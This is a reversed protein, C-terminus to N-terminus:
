REDHDDSDGRAADELESLVQEEVLDALAAVTRHVLVDRPTLSVGFADNARSVIHLARLSDGGIQLYDDEAGVVTHLVEEWIDAIVEETPTRPAVRDPTEQLDAPPAPLAARDTKGNDTLPFREMVVFASPVMPGPLTGAALARLEAATPHEAGPAALLHAVLRPLDQEDERVTVVADLVAPHRTLVTEVEGAEIRHGRLKLQHDTRGLYHLEGRADRRVLDGTRYMRTGPPGFPDATFRSATLAPRNLYGRALSPGSLWLEGPVGDPVPRLRADLVYTGTHPLRRGIPPAAGDAELPGSWTAVVTAETPGYSNVLRHHPAWRAVLEAGCADAGVTLTKLDPLTGPTEPPLTALAAPPLLTHTIREARLVEALEAGLLPGPRPVVLSAGHPLSMCLELVSADFSPTAFVLVRDGADVQYHAAEAAAFGALGRHTVVVGKPTGTSGSTYIVYAPDDLRLPRTRDADSPRHGPADAPMGTLLDGVEEPGLTVVPDADRLMLAIREQPYGPDVSLFAAGAKTVAVQALFMEASRPLTLAVLDGPGVGRAILRHALVNARAEVEAFSLSLGPAHLAPADPARDVAAEVLAPLTVPAVAGTEPRAAGALLRSREAPPLVDVDDLPTGDATDALAHLTHLLQDALSRATSEEFYRPDYGLEVSLREGPSIVVTVPYNTAERAELDHMQVGHAGATSDDVPYNEFVLLSDFLPTGAPLDSFTHLRTLPVHGFRRDEARAAQTRRLWAACTEGGDVTARAPLTTIFLGTITDAGPLDSPRGSVTTGYCVEREGSWRSLLLGWAGEVVTNLTLRHRRAFEQLAKTSDEGLRESLWTGSSASAGLAPRRDYPLATPATLGALAASWHEEARVTDRGAFWAAYDSFPRRDPLRPEDGAALAAHCAVVDSLVHFVSWGDLLVHHFTWVVRVEDPATRILTTRLMPAADLAIGRAKDEALLAELETTRREPTLDSWDHETVPLVATRHVAQLPVPVGSLVVATRLVPTRDVVHQWAAALLGTDRVGDMVFTVQETYVGGGPEDMGHVVMGSQTPTLPYVDVIDRGTGVLRDVAAQDLPALPFDSPTRGGAGPEACHRVIARLERALEAALGEVTDRRYVERSYAWTFELRKDTVQGLVDILHPREAALDMGGALGSHPAHLLGGTPANGDQQGLYNFGLQPLGPLRAGATAHLHRLAGYGLGGHPVARLSEKVSKLASGTDAHRPVDLVVPYVSTFWGVTRSLDVGDFLEERGHGELTVPVRDRGTWRAVVRGLACLLVDNVRTRYVDPVDQLLRRTDERDLRVTVTEEYAATNAGALDTPLAVDESAAEWHALEDDFGGDATHDLLRRAWARFSTTKAGLDVPHGDRLARYATDLDELLVHWSVADVALHHAALILVPRKDGDLRCLAARFLPAVSLDFAGGLRDALERLAADTGEPTRPPLDHVELHAPGAPATVHQRWLGEGDREFRLRLADHHKLVATLADRLLTEDTDATLQHSVTQTLHAPDGSLTDFLHHQVPTLPTEGVVPGQEARVATAPLDEAAAALEAVTQHQFLHRPTLNLGARRAASVIQIGLISDGGLTFYNDRVGVDPVRLVESWITALTKEAGTRPAHEGDGTTGAPWVPEPLAGRDLKGTAGLPLRDLPMVVSPVLHEPLTRALFARLEASDPVDTGAPVAYAVLRHHGDHEVVQAAAASVQPHRAVASEVEGLEIRFGRLKVQHDTRGLYHLEGRADRRVLDGTRYMRTGPPGFPDATFRSATLAPRNLYGRALSPGSLWLEGPVGDPVPRLRADLVYTGTHPLRRGIPPAAGDAELPGSWTAVVTAETPGYSNVLRHHPAWRAVLEAGCADAGVTLTKLDPLTGPTEPPLTALAAPPLLTHTVRGDRLVEALEAGLLPGPPPVVLSAGRPLSMCLELVSADFSPTAFALVRDGPSVQYHAAEAASFGALGRHTVVVGKPTGTSGSTYIVYAPDDLRLPRTRDADSPRHGPADAPMGTLLDGVEEPGLTVVPDADRLMLAIREQPYGPDVSLFAAGAKTVAVQALFMEASRPLTLAVLDGPGVGRAILRHALVNARAEVEAFSLSLGPAHLAPADPARDVAAEVLAPLTVPAVAGTEPRAAGALLRSREAPPLVDVDDLPTGDATDALAHLTHLLQDALSRATSEEFHHPDFGLEATLQEGPSIMVTLPYNTPELDREQEISLGHRALADADFPYNEFVVISDFLTSGGPIDSWTQLQALSVFDHRRSESQAAQLDGLWDLLRRRGDVRARTPLTNIFLGVMSTVGPLDAPRGSVTTGFVVDDGGGYRSLLLAWAGQLMTNVTLGAQQATERLRASVGGDLTVRVSGSSSARHAEAPRRDRPLPTPASFGALATRWYQEARETDQRTLWGLYDAFAARQAVEPRRGAALAAYRECVEDFVQAASWGDLLVHHFTWVMRVRDPSLRILALRMLPAAGLDVGAARDAALLRDMEQERRQGSWTTWDHHTVPVTARRQVVQLPEATEQWELRTRLVPNADATHQWADALAHPDTVGCLVLQVQNVYTRGDPDLLSHFLMGAQMPTLPYLDAVTRGDGVVRDLAPQDLRALPFDSPTRGGADPRACHAVIGELAQVMGSALGAITEERHLRHSYYWTIELQDDEVRAVVDLLHPRVSEPAEAGDLGGPVSRVLSGDDAGSGGSWGFRGLYNFSVAAAPPGDLPDGGALHRLAGFGIGRDPVSRLQEKVAKLATGWDGDPVDLAVPYLSTFWGVTRSLDIDEFLQDERGHGELGVAVTRRGTWGALVRGLATLLADDIRTRYAGPVERLLADTRRRDLRVTVERVDAMTNAGGDVAEEPEVPLPAACHRSVDQWHARQDAFGGADTHARLRRAWEQVSTTREALRVGEGARAQRYATDLDELLVRWSVGDVVLHHVTLLLRPRDGAFLLATLLPGSDLRFAAHAAATLRSEAAEADARDLGTLDHVGLLEPVAAGADACTQRWSGDDQREFRSRLADHHAWLAALARRLADPDVDAATEVVVSQNFFEPRHPDADLFWHQIPTLAVDGAVPDTGAVPAATGSAAALAAVTPHRFLDRPTLALGAARARSVVQISLISDGGLMFFHDDAGVRAVGLVDAWIESLIQEAGARPARYATDGTTSWDPEPLRRRDVKGNATLTLEPVTVFAAPLMYDPLDAALRERLEAAGPVRAGPAPVLHAALRKHGGQAYLSVVAEAVAPHATLRAEIEAPEVRFGRIKIQDDARGVFHLEGDGSWRVIDGTRYMRTGPPGFPDALYRGATAGPLGAYGRALGAGAVYLEGPVGPPQPELAEDLVYARTNDLPRGIPLVAPLPDGARFPRRTAFTTTETPGYGDVVTLDPCADLVRAVVAGPVAEGGTWVETAGRLCAPDEQALLRFLGATLWLCRVGRETIARRVGAADLDEPPALVATGGHLLPVWLEYTSADFAHPSHMLVREHGAFSRDLALAAVDRHRVAVGKPTGTSGSTFMLYQVNDPHVLPIRPADSTGADSAGDAAGAGLDGAGGDGDVRLVTGDPLADRASDRCAEDTLLLAAGVDTLLRRLRETPARGDLPVYVGGTRALALQAVVLAVSRNMLVGVPVEATVGLATLRTALAAARDDLDGYTLQEDGAELAPADPTRRVQAAFLDAATVDPTYAATDNWTDLVQHRRAPTLLPLRAPARDPGTTMGELLVTLYEAMRAVTGADFLEPDYGLRLTLETGPYAVLSLPYNTTEIGDLGSLGLGHAAALDDDVPYNEFVVISDFLDAREPLGTFAKMRTLAVYDFRRDESQDRQLDRLWDLLTGEREVTVPTPLTAIFLGTMDESGPLEAPRGSVTTGFVVDARGAQRSLLLAWAGQVLTNLTLGATRALDELARSTAEPVTVRVADTSEAHHSERPERDYPLATTESVGALRDRWHREAEAWDRERLWAVYDRFPRRDPGDGATDVAGPAATSRAHRAFVDSLVQFLSWGDLILHHFSWVVRVSTDSLRALVLRQLPAPTLDVGRERDRDLFDRLAADREDEALDRWDLHTVPVLAHRRVVFLPEPVDQWVVHGRLVPSRDTVQQWAAAFAGPDPVGDLVFSLQQFYVRRDDQSLGHFLMGAQTPTLPHVDEVAGPDDGTVRDVAAQDLAALPFDSPTRGGNGPTAAHRAIARLADAFREALGTVTAQRHLEASYFFTFELEEGDLQGVVELAHPRTSLPDADLELPRFTGGYLSDPAGGTAFRGLYNFSVQAGPAPPLVGPAALHRLVDHGLGHRPVARLQEKVQKLVADWGADAPVALAVPHRTTFWGVTRSTDVDAFLEERGHGEVDVLVREHGTWACLVRGLASLLVDNVRTRYTDPLTRLLAATDDAGLRVTVPRASAYTNAGTLDRPLDVVAGATAEAWYAAEDDFGGAAARDTLLRAWHRLPSSKAPLAGTGDRGESRARYARDLDELLVRWSVGDVVLHHVALHLVAPLGEGRDHLVARLLPGHELDFPGLHPMDTGPGTHRTLRLRPVREDIRWGAGGRQGGNGDSGDGGDHDGREGRGDHQAAAHPFRSRLADHHALVDNLAHELATADVTGALETSLTQAFHGARDGASDFLWRQIPTLPATGTAPVVAPAATRRPGSADACRALAAVTQHRYVDRSTVTLGAQRAQAVVQISLISDGGLAFFNDDAGVREVHLVQAWIGALVRETPTRPAVHRTAHAAPSPAPLRSRDLKGNPNLPLASLVTVTAPVLYDPLSRGLTRRVSEPEVHAGPAPVVYGILRRHGDSELVTAASQAVGACGRLAEEVEGLEIRFGRVKVQHDIRGLYELEGSASWRVLDGTRYMREGATGFPDALFRSATLGPRGLYGRALGGGGLYLEGTVGPPQPRLLRDLVYTRTRAVPRGIPPAQGTVDAGAFWATAYVTAETPGYINAVEVSPMAARLDRVTQAPLAEGALVVTDAELGAGGATLLRSIVSPVGSLLGARKPGREDALATLDAIVEVSGGALLPCFLEFVSVDFNLSTSAVVHALGQAGFREAAWAALAAVTRHTVVVGKPRGTSGSTYIVYAPHDPRLPRARDTDSLDAAYPDEADRGPADDAPCDEIILPECGDPLADATERAAVVLAPAADDLMFSIRERPYGPDVPLYGAGSKLVAWLTPLLDASRPLCLAVLTEPGAGRAVLLRALRNARRNVEAYDLSTPGCLVATRGPTAAVQAEFLAPLTDGPEQHRGAPAPPNWTELLTSREDESLISLKALPRHPSEAMGELLRHLHGSMRSVTDAGFLDTNYEVTLDCGGGPGPSFELVLDFRSAPRPLPHEEVRLGGCDGSHDVATQQVVLAQVLPTRSPDRPPALEEVVRDFPVGDHAFADLVTARMSQVFEDVTLTDDVEERLVVTNAFFGTVDELDRRGRGNTITGFAVDRQGSYRSFLVAAAGAFLTFATTGRGGALQRLRAILDAPLHHRHATGATTREAPRARDTPLNLQQMGTLHRKWYALDTAHSEAPREREWVAFDPYQVGPAPLGDPAGTAEARYLATLDRTLIGVSWGDTVIHHQALLLLHDDAARHVLLARTLPGAALDYPRSLEDTLIREAAEARQGAPLDRVDATRLPLVAEGSVRQVGQGDVTDFTTRLADHRAALRDLARRLAAVDPEGRLRLAVGTNYESGGDSLDDLFWLRRQASSLPLPRDRPAPPIPEAAVAAGPDALLPALAAINRATFVDRVLLRVGLEDRIRSLTRAALISDGGLDFFDDEVGLEGVALVDQWIAALAREEPTRPLVRGPAPTHVPAPLANRDIKHQPTLPLEDLVVVAAPVMHAPLSAAAGALLEAPGPARERDAPTVYGVLRRHGPEDERVVVVAERVGDHALLAAEIEGPEIRFGRVKVQRDVRGLYELEGGATWRARDGTRYLRAGPPGFPDAVFRGATLGPRGLYGRAVGDGGVFLEGDGGPPVPRMDADLVHARTGPLPGGITPTGTGAALPGTWSAVITAETPGYSNIMRRGPAWDDVLHAPCAEAGVILTRLHPAGGPGPAPLTTLAAPPILTHSIRHEDLVAALEDGLWPGDPPVVLTAGTLVSIFLELVSADFSPSSFQLVRDGPGVAYQQAAAAAFGAIGRHTVTVGKPRGTSGSTYIVYAAQDAAVPAVPPTVRAGGTDAADAEGWGELVARARRPDDLVVAPAADRLMLERREAPYDPDVPLFAAGTRAVALEAAILEMSRPLVLAVTREPGAGRRLLDDALRETREALERYSWTRRGDTLAPAQPTRTVWVSFLEALPRYPAPDTGARGTAAAAEPLGPLSPAPSSTDHPETM